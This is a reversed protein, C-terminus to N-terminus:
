LCIDERHIQLLEQDVQDHSKKLIGISKMGSRKALAIALRNTTPIMAIITEIKQINSFLYKYLDKALSLANGELGETISSIHMEYMYMSRPVLKVHGAYEGDLYINIKLIPISDDSSVSYSTQRDNNGM